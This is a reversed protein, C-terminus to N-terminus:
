AWYLVNLHTGFLRFLYSNLYPALPGYPFWVDRYLVKGEALLAPFYMEHGSDITLSGWAGWTTYLQAAWVAMLVLISICTTLNSTEPHSESESGSVSVFESSSQSKEPFVPSPHVNVTSSDM